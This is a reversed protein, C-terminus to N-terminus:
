DSSFGQQSQWFDHGTTKSFSITVPVKSQARSHVGYSASLCAPIKPVGDDPRLVGHLCGWCPHPGVTLLWGEQTIEFLLKYLQKLPQYIIVLSACLCVWLCRGQSGWRHLPPARPFGLPVWPLLSAQTQSRPLGHLSVPPSFACLGMTRLNMWLEHFWRSVKGKVERKSSDASVM